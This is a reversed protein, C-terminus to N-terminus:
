LSINWNQITTPSEGTGKIGCSKAETQYTKWISTKSTRLNSNANQLDTRFTKYAQLRKEIRSTRDPQNWSSKLNSLRNQLALKVADNYTDEATILASERKDLAASICAIDTLVAPTTTAPTTTQAVGILPLALLGSILVKKLTFRM